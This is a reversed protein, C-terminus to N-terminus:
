NTQLYLFLPNPAAFVDHAENTDDPVMNNAGSDFTVFRGDSSIAPRMSFSTAEDGNSSINVRETAANKRDRIFIDVVGNNDNPVLNSADSIFAVFRGDASIAPQGSDPLDMIGNTEDGNTSINVRETIGAGQRDRVFIDCLYNNDDPILNRAESSFAVFRGDASIAPSFSSFDAEGGNTSINVRETIGNKELDRVFIDLKRNNDNPVLNTASSEFAVFRGNASISPYNSYDNAEDGNSAVSVRETTGNGQRDRIFIDFSYNNDNPVLNSAESSFAIFRGDASITPAGSFGNAEGGNSAVSVRETIGTGQLDRIFIDCLNNNDYPILNTASSEFAVFRGDTSIVPNFSRGNSEDGNSAVSVRKVIGTLRDSLFIDTVGNNDNAVLDDSRSAFVVFRGNGSCSSYYSSRYVQQGESSVSVREIDNCGTALTFFIPCIIYTFIASISLSNFDRARRM